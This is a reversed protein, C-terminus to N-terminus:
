SIWSFSIEDAKRMDYWIYDLIGRFPDLNVCNLPWVELTASKTQKHKSRMKLTAFHAEDHQPSHDSTDEHWIKHKYTAQIPQFQLCLTTLEKCLDWQVKKFPTGEFNAALLLYMHQGFLHMWMDKWSARMGLIYLNSLPIKFLTWTKGM